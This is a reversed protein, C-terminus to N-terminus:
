EAFTVAGREVGRDVAANGKPDGLQLLARAAAERVQSEEDDLMEILTLLAPLHRRNGMAEAALSRERSRGSGLFPVLVDIPADDRQVLCFLASYSLEARKSHLAELLVPLTRPDPIAGLAELRERALNPDDIALLVPGARLDGIGGDDQGQDSARPLDQARVHRTGEDHVRELVALHM